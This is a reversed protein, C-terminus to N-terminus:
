ANKATGIRQKKQPANIHKRKKITFKIAKNMMTIFKKQRTGWDGNEKFPRNTTMIHAHPNGDKDRHIAIDAVMGHNVFNEQCYNLLLEEQEEENLESPLALIFDRALQANKSKEIKEVENWLKQRNLTWDPANSPKLIFTKPAVSRGYFNFKNYRESYLKEGSRYSASAIASQGKGRSIVKAEFHYIAM